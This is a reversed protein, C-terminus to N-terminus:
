FYEKHGYMDRRNTSSYPVDEIDFSPVDYELNPVLALATAWIIDDDKGDIKGTYKAKGTKTKTRRLQHLQDFYEVDQNTTILRDQPNEDGAEYLYVLNNVMDMKFAPTFKHGIVRTEPFYKRLDAYVPAGLGTNDMHLENINWHTMLNAIQPNYITHDDGHWEQRFRKYWHGNAEKEFVVFSTKNIKEAPDLGATRFTDIDPEVKTTGYQRLEPNVRNLLLQYSLMATNEDLFALGYEQLFANKTKARAKIRDWHLDPCVWWPTIHVSWEETNQQRFERYKRMFTPADKKNEWTTTTDWGARKAINHFEGRQGFPTSGISVKYGDRVTTQLIATLLPEDNPIFAIEDIFIDGHFSRGAMEKTPLAMLRSGNEFKILSDRDSVLPIKFEDDMLNVAHKVITLLENATEQRLSVFLKLYNPITIADILSDIMENFSFGIQRSKLASRLASDDESWMNQYSYPEFKVREFGFETRKNVNIFNRKFEKKDFVDEIFTEYMELDYNDNKIKLQTIKM